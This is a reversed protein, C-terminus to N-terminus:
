RKKRRHRHKKKKAKAKSPIAPARKFGRPLALATATTIGNGKTEHTPLTIKVDSVAISFTGNSARMYPADRGLIELRPHHGQAFHWANANLQWTLGTDGDAPRYVFVMAFAPRTRRIAHKGNGTFEELLQLREAVYVDFRYAGAGAQADIHENRGLLIRTIGSVVKTATSIPINVGTRM